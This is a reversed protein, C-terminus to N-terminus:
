VEFESGELYWSEPDLKAAPDSGAHQTEPNPNLCKRGVAGLSAQKRCYQVDHAAAPKWSAASVQRNLLVLPGM